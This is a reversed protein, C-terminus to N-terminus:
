HAREFHSMRGDFGVPHPRTTDVEYAVYRRAAPFASFCSSLDPRSARKDSNSPM